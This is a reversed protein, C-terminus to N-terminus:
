VFYIIIKLVQDSDNRIVELLLGATQLISLILKHCVNQFSAEEFSRRM